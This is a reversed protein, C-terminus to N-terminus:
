SWGARGWRSRRRPICTCRPSPGHRGPTWRRRASGTKACRPWGAGPAPSALRHRREPLRRRALDTVRPGPVPEWTQGGDTTKFVGSGFQDTGDGLIYGTKPDIFRVQNLGPLAGRSSRQWKLGGDRTFLLVGVSGGGHPQEERGVVWGLFPSLFCVGRLSARRAPRSASGPRAATSPTGSSARTASRGARARTSSSCPACRRTEPYRLDSPPRPTPLSQSDAALAISSACRM